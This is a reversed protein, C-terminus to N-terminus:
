SGSTPVQVVSVAGISAAQTLAEVEGQKVLVTIPLDGSGISGADPKVVTQVKASQALLTGSAGANAGGSGSSGKAADSGVRYVAVTDGSAIEAPYQGQKLSLGVVVKGDDLGDKETLMQGVLVSGAVIDTSARYKSLLERQSYPVYKVAKDEAVMVSEM